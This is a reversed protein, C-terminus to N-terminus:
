KYLQSHTGIAVFIVEEVKEEFIARYDGSVNISRYGKHKGSLRHNHLKSDFKNAVFVGLREKFRIKIENPCKSFKKLFDKSYDIKM